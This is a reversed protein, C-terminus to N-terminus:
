SAVESSNSIIDKHISSFLDDYWSEALKEIYSLSITEWKQGLFHQEISPFVIVLEEYFDEVWKSIKDSSPWWLNNHALTTNRIWKVSDLFPRHKKLFSNIQKKLTVDWQFAIYRLSLRIKDGRDEHDVIKATEIVRMNQLAVVIDEFVTKYKVSNAIAEDDWYLWNKAPKALNEKISYQNFKNCFSKRSCFFRRWKQIYFSLKNIQEKTINEM